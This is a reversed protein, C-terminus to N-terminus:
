LYSEHAVGFKVAWSLDRWTAVAAIKPILELKKLKM